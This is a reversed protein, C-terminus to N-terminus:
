KKKGFNPNGKKKKKIVETIIPAPIDDIKPQEIPVVIEIYQECINGSILSLAVVVDINIVEGISHGATEKIYRVKM